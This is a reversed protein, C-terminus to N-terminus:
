ELSFCQDAYNLWNDYHKWLSSLKLGQSIFMQATLNIYSICWRRGSAFGRRLVLQHTDALKCYRGVAKWGCMGSDSCSRRRVALGTAWKDGSCVSVSRGGDGWGPFGENKKKKLKCKIKKCCNCAWLLLSCYTCLESDGWEGVVEWM